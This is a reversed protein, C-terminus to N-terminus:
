FPTSSILSSIPCHCLFPKAHCSPHQLLTVKRRTSSLHTTSTSLLKVRRLLDSIPLAPRIPPSGSPLLTCCHVHSLTSVAGVNTGQLGIWNDEPCVPALPRDAQLWRMIRSRNSSSYRRVPGSAWHFSLLKILVPTLTTSILQLIYSFISSSPHPLPPRLRVSSDTTMDRADDYSPTM